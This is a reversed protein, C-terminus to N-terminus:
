MQPTDGPTLADRTMQNGTVNLKKAITEITSGLVDM